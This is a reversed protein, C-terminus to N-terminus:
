GNSREPTVPQLFDPIELNTIHRGPQEDDKKQIDVTWSASNFSTLSPYNTEVDQEGGAETNEEVAIKREKSRRKVEGLMEELFPPRDGSEQNSGVGEEGYETIQVERQNKDLFKQVQLVFM